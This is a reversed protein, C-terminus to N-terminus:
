EGIKEALWGAFQKGEADTLETILSKGYTSTLHATVTKNDLKGNEVAQAATTRLATAKSADIKKAAKAKAPKDAATSAESSETSDVDELAETKIRFMKQYAYKTAQTMMKYIGKDQNDQGTGPFRSTVGWDPDSQPLNADFVTMYCYGYAMNGSHEVHEPPFDIVTGANIQELLGEILGIVGHEQFYDYNHHKNTGTKEVHAKIQNQVWALKAAGGKLNPIKPTSKKPAAPKSARAPTPKKARAPAAKEAKPATPM